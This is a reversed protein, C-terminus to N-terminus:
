RIEITSCRIVILLWLPPVHRLLSGVVLLDSRTKIAPTITCSICFLYTSGALSVINSMKRYVHVQQCWHVLAAIIVHVSFLLSSSCHILRILLGNPRLIFALSCRLDHAYKPHPIRTWGVLIFGNRSNFCLFAYSYAMSWHFCGSIRRFQKRIVVRIAHVKSPWLCKVNAPWM